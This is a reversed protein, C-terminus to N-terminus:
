GKIGEEMKRSRRTRTDFSVCGCLFRLFLAEMGRKKWGERGGPRGGERAGESERAGGLEGEVLSLPVTQFWPRFLATPSLTPLKVLRPPNGRVCPAGLHDEAPREGGGEEQQDAKEEDRGVHLHFKPNTEVQDLFTLLPFLNVSVTSSCFM